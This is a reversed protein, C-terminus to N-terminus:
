LFGQWRENRAPCTSATVIREQVFPLSSWPLHANCTHRAQPFRMGALPSHLVSLQEIILCGDLALHMSCPAASSSITSTQLSHYLLLFEAVRFLDPSFSFRLFGFCFVWCLFVRSTRLFHAASRTPQSKSHSHLHTFLEVSAQVRSSAARTFVYKSALTTQYLMSCCLRLIFLRLSALHGLAWYARSVSPVTPSIPDSAM